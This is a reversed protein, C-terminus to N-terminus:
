SFALDMKFATSEFCVTEHSNMFDLLLSPTSRSADMKMAFKVGGVQLTQTVFESCFTLDSSGRYGIFPGCFMKTNSFGVQRDSASKAFNYMLNYSSSSVDFGKIRYNPNAYSRKRFFVVEDAFISAAMDDDFMIEVHSV